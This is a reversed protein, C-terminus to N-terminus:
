PQLYQVNFRVAYHVGAGNMLACSYIINSGSVATLYPAQSAVSASETGLTQTPMNYTYFIPTTYGNNWQVGCTLTGTAGATTILADLGVRYLGGNGATVAYLTGNISTTQETLTLTQVVNGPPTSWTADERLYKSTGATAGPDPVLGHAHGAGSPGFDSVTPPNAWLADERLMKTNGATAGPDPVLGHAHGAGSPGFDTNASVGPCTSNPPCALIAERTSVAIGPGSIQEVYTGPAAYWFYNGLGDPTVPQAIAQTLAADSYVNALPTCPSGSAGAQCVRITATALPTGRSNTAVGDRRMGQAQALSVAFLALLVLRVVLHRLSTREASAKVDRYPLERHLEALEAEDAPATQANRRCRLATVLRVSIELHGNQLGAQSTIKM